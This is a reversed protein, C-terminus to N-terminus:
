VALTQRLNELEASLAASDGAFDVRGKSLVHHRNALDLLVKVNKDVILVAVGEGQVERVVRWIEKRLLPSLGETAEDM